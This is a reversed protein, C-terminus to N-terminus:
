SNDFIGKDNGACDVTEWLRCLCCALQLFSSIGHEAMLDRTFVRRLVRRRPQLKVKKGAKRVESRVLRNVSTLESYTARRYIYVWQHVHIYVGM